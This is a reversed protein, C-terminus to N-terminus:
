HVTGRRWCDTSFAVFKETEVSFKGLKGHQRRRNYQSASEWLVVICKEGQSGARLPGSRGWNCRPPRRRRAPRSGPCRDLSSRCSSRRCRSGSIQTMAFQITDPLRFNIFKPECKSSRTGHLLCKCDLPKALQRRCGHRHGM